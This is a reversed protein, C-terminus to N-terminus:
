PTPCLEGWLCISPRGLTTWVPRGGGEPTDAAQSCCTHGSPRPQAAALPGPSTRGHNGPGEECRARPAAWPCPTLRGRFQRSWSSARGGGERGLPGEALMELSPAGRYMAWTCWSSSLRGTPASVDCALLRGPGKSAAETPVLGSAGAPTSGKLDGSDPWM